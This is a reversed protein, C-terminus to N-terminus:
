PKIKFLKRVIKYNILIYITYTFPILIVSLIMYALLKVPWEHSPWTAFHSAFYLRAFSQEAEVVHKERSKEHTTWKRTLRPCTALDVIKLLRWWNLVLGMKFLDWLICPFLNICNCCKKDYFLALIFIIHVVM